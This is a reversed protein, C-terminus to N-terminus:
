GGEINWTSCLACGLAACVWKRGLGCLGLLADDSLDPLARNIGREVLM